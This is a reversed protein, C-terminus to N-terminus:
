RVHELVSKLSEGAKDIGIYLQHKVVPFPSVFAQRYERLLPMSKRVFESDYVSRRAPLLYAGPYYQRPELFCHYGEDSMAFRLFLIVAERKESLRGRPVVFADVWSPTGQSETGFPIQRVTITEM